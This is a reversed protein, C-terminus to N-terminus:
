RMTTPLWLAIQPFVMMLVTTIIIAIMLASTGKFVKV